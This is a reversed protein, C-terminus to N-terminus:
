SNTTASYGNESLQFVLSDNLLMSRAVDAHKAFTPCTFLRVPLGDKSRLDKWPINRGFIVCFFGAILSGEIQPVMEIDLGGETWALHKDHSEAKLIVSVHSGKGTEIGSAAVVLHMRYGSISFSSSQWYRGSKKFESYNPMRFTLAQGNERLETGYSGMLTKMCQLPLKQTDSMSATLFEAETIVAQTSKQFCKLLMNCHKHINVAVHRRQDVRMFKSRCGVRRFQCEVKQKPCRQLHKSLLKRKVLRASCKNPCKLPYDPCLGLHKGAIFRYLDEIGCHECKCERLICDNALHDCLDQQKLKEGCESCSTLGHDCKSLHSELDCLEGVWSCGDRRYECYVELKKVQREVSKDLLHTFNTERCHPCSHNESSHDLWEKLCSNCYHQGCCATLHPEKLVETCLACCLEPCVDKAFYYTYGGYSGERALLSASTSMNFVELEIAMHGLLQMSSGVYSCTVGDLRLVM